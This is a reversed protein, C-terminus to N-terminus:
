REIKGYLYTFLVALGGTLAILGYLYLLFVVDVNDM